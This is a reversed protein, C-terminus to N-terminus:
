VGDNKITKNGILSNLRDIIKDPALFLYLTLTVGVGLIWYIPTYSFETKKDEIILFFQSAYIVSSAIVTLALIIWGLITTKPSKTYNKM